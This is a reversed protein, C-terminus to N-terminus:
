EKERARASEEEREVDRPVGFGLEDEGVFRWREFGEWGDVLLEVAGGRRGRGERLLFRGPTGHIEAMSESVTATGGGGNCGNHAGGAEELCVLM